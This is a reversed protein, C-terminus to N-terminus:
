RRSPIVVEAAENPAPYLLREVTKDMSDLLSVAPAPNRAEDLVMDWKQTAVATRNAPSRVTSPLLTYGLWVLMAGVYAVSNIRSLFAKSFASQQALSTFVLMNVASWFGLGVAVGFVFNKRSIHLYDSFLLMFFVLACQMMRVCRSVLYISNTINDIGNNRWSTVAWMGAVLLIVLACWRFLIVSLDRLAEYPRFADKFIELIVAFSVVSSLATLTWYVYFYNTWTHLPYEIAFSVVAFVAYNFFYPYDRHLGRRFMGFAVLAMMTPM